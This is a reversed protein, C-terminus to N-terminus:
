VQPLSATVRLCLWQASSPALTSLLSLPRVFDVAGQAGEM